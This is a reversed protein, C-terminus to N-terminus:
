KKFSRGGAITSSQKRPDPQVKDRTPSFPVFGSRFCIPPRTQKYGDALLFCTEGIVLHSFAAANLLQHHPNAM